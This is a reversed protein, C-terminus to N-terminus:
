VGVFATFESLVQSAVSERIAEKRFDVEKASYMFEELKEKRRHTQELLRIRKFHGMKDIFAFSEDEPRVIIDSSFERRNM